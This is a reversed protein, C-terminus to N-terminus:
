SVGGPTFAPTEDRHITIAFDPCLMECLRCGTCAAADTIQLRGTTDMELCFEPCVRPCIGCDKCWSRELEIRPSGATALDDRTAEPKLDVPPAERGERFAALNLDVTKSPVFRGISTEWISDPVGIFGAIVGLIVSNAARANGLETAVATADVFRQKVTQPGIVEANLVPYSTMWDKRDGCAGPPVIRRVDAVVAGGPR